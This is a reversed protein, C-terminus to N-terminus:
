LYLQPLLASMAMVVAYVSMGALRAVESVSVEESGQRGILVAEDGVAAPTEGLRVIVANASIALISCRRGAVLVSGKGELARPFGDSYGVPLTAVREPQSATFIRHYSVSEGPRLTKVYAIRAKLALVPKLDLKREQEARGSPYLGYLMIGPRVMDLETYAAPLDLIAASSAAHRLGVALGRETARACIERLRALQIPDFDPDETFTTFVGEITVEPFAAVREIFELAHDYPVGVRGLGTDVKIHVRAPRGLRHAAQALVQVQDTYVNQSIGRRIIEEADTDSFPGFNLILAGLGAQRLRRAEDLKAVLFHRVGAAELARAIGVLGHGYANAKVVAMVFKEGVRAQIQRLNWALNATSIELWPDGGTTPTEPAVPHPAIGGASVRLAATAGGVALLGLFNRRKLLM